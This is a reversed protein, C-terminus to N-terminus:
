RFRNGGRGTERDGQRVEEEKQENKREGKEKRKAVTCREWLRGKKSDCEGDRQGRVEGGRGAPMSSPNRLTTNAQMRTTIAPTM